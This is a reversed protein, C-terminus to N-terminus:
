LMMMMMIVAEELLTERVKWRVKAHCTRPSLYLIIMAAILRHLPYDFHYDLAHSPSLSM